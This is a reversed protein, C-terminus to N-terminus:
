HYYGFTILIIIGLFLRHLLVGFYGLTSVMRSLIRPLSPRFSPYLNPLVGFYFLIYFSFLFNHKPTSGGIPLFSIPFASLNLLICSFLYSLLIAQVLKASRAEDEAILLTVFPLIALIACSAILFHTFPNRYMKLLYISQLNPVEHRMRCDFPCRWVELWGGGRIHRSPLPSSGAVWPATLRLFNAIM